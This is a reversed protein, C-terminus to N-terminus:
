LVRTVICFCCFWHRTFLTFFAKAFSLFFVFSLAQFFHLISMVSASSLFASVQHQQLGFYDREASSRLTRARPIPPLSIHINFYTQFQRPCTRDWPLLGRGLLEAIGATEPGETHSHVRTHVDTASQGCSRRKKRERKPVPLGLRQHAM